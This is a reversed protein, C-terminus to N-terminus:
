FYQAVNHQLPSSFDPYGFGWGFIFERTRGEYPWSAYIGSPTCGDIGIVWQSIGRDDSDAFLLAPGGNGKSSYGKATVPVVSSQKRSSFLFCKRFSIAPPIYIQQTYIFLFLLLALEFPAVAAFGCQSRLACCHEAGHACFARLANSTQALPADHARNKEM